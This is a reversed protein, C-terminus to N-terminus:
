GDILSTVGDQCMLVCTELLGKVRLITWSSALTMFFGGCRQSLADLGKGQLTRQQCLSLYSCNRVGWVTAWRVPAIAVWKGPRTRTNCFLCPTQAHEVRLVHWYLLHYVPKKKTIPRYNVHKQRYLVSGEPSFHGKVITNKYSESFNMEPVFWPLNLILYWHTYM